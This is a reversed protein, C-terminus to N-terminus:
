VCCRTRADPDRTSNKDRPDSCLSTVNAALDSIGGRKGETAEQETQLFRSPHGLRTFVAALVRCRLCRRRTSRTTHLNLEVEVLRETSTFVHHKFANIYPTQSLQSSSRTLFCSRTVSVLDLNHRLTYLHVCVCARALFSTITSSM